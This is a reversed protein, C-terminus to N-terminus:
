LIVYFLIFYIIFAEAYWPGPPPKRNAPGLSSGGKLSSGEKLSCGAADLSPSANKASHWCKGQRLYHNNITMLAMVSNVSTSTTHCLQYFTTWGKLLKTEDASWLRRLYKQVLNHESSSVFKRLAASTKGITDYITIICPNISLLSLGM